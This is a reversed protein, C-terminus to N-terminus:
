TIYCVNWFLTQNFWAPGAEPLVTVHVLTDKMGLSREGSRSSEWLEPPNGDFAPTVHKNLKNRRGWFAERQRRGRRPLGRSGLEWLMTGLKVKQM